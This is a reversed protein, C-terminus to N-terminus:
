PNRYCHNAIQRSQWAGNKDFFAVWDDVSANPRNREFAEMQKFHSEMCKDCIKKYIIEAM